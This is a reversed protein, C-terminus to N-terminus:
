VTTMIQARWHAPCLHVPPPEPTLTSGTNTAELPNPSLFVLSFTTPLPLVVGFRRAALLRSILPLKERKRDAFPDGDGGDGRRIKKSELDLDGVVPHSECEPFGKPLLDCRCSDGGVIPIGAEENGNASTVLGGAM